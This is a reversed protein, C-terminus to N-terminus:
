GRHSRLDASGDSTMIDLCYLQLPFTSLKLEFLIHCSYCVEPTPVTTVSLFFVREKPAAVGAARRGAGRQRRGWRTAAAGRSRGMARHLATSCPRSVRRLIPSPLV